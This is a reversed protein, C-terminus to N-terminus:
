NAADVAKIAADTIDNAAYVAVTTPFILSYGDKKGVGQVAERAKKLVTALMEDQLTNLDGSFEQNWQGLLTDANRRRENMTNFEVKETDTLSAKVMLDNFKKSDARIATKIKEVEDKDAQTAGPKLTLTKLKEAQDATLVKNTNVFQLLGQRLDVQVSMDDRVKKGAASESLIRQMDVVGAKMDAPQFGSAIMMVGMAAAVLWGLGLIKNKM